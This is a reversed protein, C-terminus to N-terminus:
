ENEIPNLDSSQSPWPVLKMKDETVCKQTQKPDNDQHFIWGRGMILNKVSATLNLNKKQYKMSVIIGHIYVLHGPDRASFYSWLMLYGATYKVTPM